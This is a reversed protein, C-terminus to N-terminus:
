KEYYDKYSKILLRQEVIYNRITMMNVSLNEYDNDTLGFLVVSQKSQKLSDFVKKENEPTIVIWKVTKLKIPSTIPIDLPQRFKEKYVTVTKTPVCGVLLLLSILVKVNLM